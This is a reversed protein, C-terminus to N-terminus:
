FHIASQCITEFLLNLILKLHFPMQFSITTSSVFESRLLNSCNFVQTLLYMMSQDFMIFLKSLNLKIKWGGVWSQTHIPGIRVNCEHCVYVWVVKCSQILCFLFMLVFKYTSNCCLNFCNFHFNLLFNQLSNKV